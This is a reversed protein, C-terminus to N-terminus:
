GENIDEGAEVTKFLSIGRKMYDSIDFQCKDPTACEKGCCQDDIVMVEKETKCTQCKFSFAKGKKKRIIDGTAKMSKKAYSSINDLPDGCYTCIVQDSEVDLSANTTGRKCKNHCSTLM